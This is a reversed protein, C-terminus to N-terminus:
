GKNQEAFLFITSRVADQQRPTLVRFNYLMTAEDRSIALEEGHKGRGESVRAVEPMMPEEGDQLWARRVGLVSAIYPMRSSHPLAEGEAWKRVAQGSVGFLRGLRAQQSPSYGMNALAKRFRTSFEQQTREKQKSRM